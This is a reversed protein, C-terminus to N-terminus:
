KKWLMITLPLSILTDLVGPDTQSKQRSKDTRSGLVYYTNLLYKKFQHMSKYYSYYPFVKWRLINDKTKDEQEMSMNNPWWILPQAAHDCENIDGLIEESLGALISSGDFVYHHIGM